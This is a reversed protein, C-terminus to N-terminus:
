RGASQQELKALESRATAVDRALAPEANARLRLYRRYAAIATERDGLSAALRAQERLYPAHLSGDIPNNTFTWRRAAEYAKRVNGAREWLRSAVLNGPLRVHDGIPGLALMSDLSTLRSHADPRGALTALQADLILALREPRASEVPAGPVPPLTRLRAIVRSTHTTDGRALEYQAVDFIATMWARRATADQPVAASVLAKSEAYHAAGATSDGDWFTAAFMRDAMRNPLDLAVRAAYGPQGREMAVYYQMQAVFERDASTATRDRARRIADDLDPVELGAIVVMVAAAPTLFPPKAELDRVAAVRAASDPAFVVRNSPHYFAATDRMLRVTALRARSTDGLHSYLLPLHELLPAYSTDLAL